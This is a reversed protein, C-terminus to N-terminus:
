LAPSPRASAPPSNLPRGQSTTNRKRGKKAKPGNGAASPPPPPSSTAVPALRRRCSQAVPPEGRRTKARRHRRRRRRLLRQAPAPSPRSESKRARRQGARPQPEIGAATRLVGWQLRSPSSTPQGPDAEPQPETQDQQPITSEQRGGEQKAGRLQRAKPAPGAPPAGVMTALRPTDGSPLHQQPIQTSKHRVASALERTSSGM